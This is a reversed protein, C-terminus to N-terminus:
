PHIILLQGGGTIFFFCATSLVLQMNVDATFHNLVFSVEHAEFFESKELM